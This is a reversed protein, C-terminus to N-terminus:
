VGDGLDIRETRTITTHTHKELTRAEVATIITNAIERGTTNEPNLRLVDALTAWEDSDCAQNLARGLAQAVADTSPITM